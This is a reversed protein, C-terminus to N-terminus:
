GRIIEILQTTSYGPKYPLIHVQGGYGNIIEAEPPPHGVGWDGGKVYIDPKLAEVLRNATTEEFIIVYDVCSLAALVQAREDQPVIPRKRGKLARVSADGNLGVVLVDGLARAEQLYSVHGVHLLDFVGNTFVITKGQLRCLIAAAKELSIVKIEGM